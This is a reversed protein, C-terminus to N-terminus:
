RFRICRENPRQRYKCRAPPPPVVAYAV